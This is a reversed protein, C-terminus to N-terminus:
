VPRQSQRQWRVKSATVRSRFDDLASLSGLRVAVALLGGVIVVTAFVAHTFETRLTILAAAVLGATLAYSILAVSRPKWGRGLLLDHSIVQEADEFFQADRTANFENEVTQLLPLIQGQSTHVSAPAGFLCESTACIKRRSV